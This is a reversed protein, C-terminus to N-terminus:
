RGGERGGGEGGERGGGERGGEGGERGGGERRGEGDRDTITVNAFTHTRNVIIKDNDSTFAYFFTEKEEFINDDTIAIKVCRNCSPPIISM